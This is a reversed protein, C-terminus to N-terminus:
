TVSLIVNVIYTIPYIKFAIVSRVIISLKCEKSSSWM